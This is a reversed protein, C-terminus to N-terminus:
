TSRTSTDLSRGTFTFRARGDGAGSRRRQRVRLFQPMHRGHVNQVAGSLPRLKQELSGMENPLKVMWDAAPASLLLAVPLFALGLRM